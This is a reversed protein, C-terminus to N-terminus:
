AAMRQLPVTAYGVPRAGANLAQDVMRLVSRRVKEERLKKASVSLRLSRGDAVTRDVTARLARRWWGAAGFGEGVALVRTPDTAGTGLDHVAYLDAAIRFGLDPLIELTGDSLAWRPPAFMDTDLGLAHMQRAAATLRLRAEHADLTAFESRRGKATQDFGALLMEAGEEIRRRTWELVAPSRRLSWDKGSYPAVLLSPTVGRDAMQTMFRAADLLYEDRVGSLSVVLAPAPVEYRTRAGTTAAGMAMAVRMQGSPVAATGEGADTWSGEIVDIGQSMARM